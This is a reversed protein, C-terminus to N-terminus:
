LLIRKTQVIQDLILAREQQLKQYFSVTLMEFTQAALTDSDLILRGTEVVRNQFVTDVLRLNVLDVARGTVDLLERWCNSMALNGAQHALAHPLLLALDVDSGPTEYETGYSGFLYIAQVEPYFRLVTEVIRLETM